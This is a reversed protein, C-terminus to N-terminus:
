SKRSTQVTVTSILRELKTSGCKACKRKGKEYQSVTLALTVKKGCKLCRFEYIPM